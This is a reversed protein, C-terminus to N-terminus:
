FRGDLFAQRVAVVDLYYPLLISANPALMTVLLALRTPDIQNPSEVSNEHLAL